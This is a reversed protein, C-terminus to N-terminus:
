FIHVFLTRLNTIYTININILYIGKLLNIKGVAIPNRKYQTVIMPTLMCVQQKTKEQEPHPRIDKHIKSELRLSFHVKLKVM